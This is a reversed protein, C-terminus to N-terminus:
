APNNGAEKKLRQLADAVDDLHPDIALAAAFAKVAAAHDGLAMQARGYNAQAEFNRPELALAHRADAASAQYDGLLYEVAGRQSWGASLSPSRAVAADFAKLAAEDEDEAMATFGAEMQRETEPDASEAWIHIIEEEIAKAWGASPAVQLAALLRPLRPDDQAARAPM